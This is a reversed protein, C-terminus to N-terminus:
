PSKFPAPKSHHPNGTYRGRIGWAYGCHICETTQCVECHMEGDEASYTVEIILSLEDDGVKMRDDKVALLTLRQRPKGKEEAPPVWVELEDYEDRDGRRKGGKKGHDKL